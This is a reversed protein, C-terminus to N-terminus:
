KKREVFYMDIEGKNKAEIKGRHNCNFADKVLNYTAGSINVMGPEGSSEMRAATNVTDGWIDYAFKKKGVIGAVLPGSHIGVRMQFFPKGEARRKAETDLMFAQMELAALILQEAHNETEIPLGAACLYADGITKIKEIEFKHIIEDFASFCFDIEDVLETPSLKEAITTFGKFDTFLVSTIDFHKPTAVGKEKLESAVEEPLINLLLKESKQREKEVEKKLLYIRLQTEVRICVEEKQFPKTVYDIGGVKFGKLKSELDYLASLFIIPINKTETTSKLHECVQFGNMDPMNIDLLILSPIVKEAISIARKANNAVLIKCGRDTLTELSSTIVKLNTPNDDVILIQADFQNM